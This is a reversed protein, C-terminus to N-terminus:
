PTKKTIKVGHSELRISCTAERMMSDLFNQYRFSEKLNM